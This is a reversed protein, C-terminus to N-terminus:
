KEYNNIRRTKLSTSIKTATKIRVNQERVIRDLVEDELNSQALTKGNNILRSRLNNIEDLETQCVACDKLHETVSRKQAENLLGETFAVLLEKYEACNM